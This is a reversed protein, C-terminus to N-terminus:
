SQQSPEDHTELENIRAQATDLENQLGVIRAAADLTM